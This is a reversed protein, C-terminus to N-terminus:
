EFIQQASKVRKKAEDLTIAHSLFDDIISNIKNIYETQKIFEKLFISPDSIVKKPPAVYTIPMLALAASAISLDKLFQRKEM